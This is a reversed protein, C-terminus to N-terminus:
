SFLRHIPGHHATAVVNTIGFFIVSGMTTVTLGTLMRLVVDGEDEHWTTKKPIGLLERRRNRQALFVALFGFAVLMGFTAFSGAVKGDTTSFAAHFFYGLAGFYAAGLKSVAGFDYGAIKPDETQMNSV